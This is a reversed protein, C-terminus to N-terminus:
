AANRAVWDFTRTCGPCLKEFRRTAARLQPLVTALMELDGSAAAVAVANYEAISEIPITGTGVEQFFTYCGDRDHRWLLNVDEIFSVVAPADYPDSAIAQLREVLNM